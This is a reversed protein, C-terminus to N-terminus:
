DKATIVNKYEKVIVENGVEIKVPRELKVRKGTYHYEKKDSGQTTEVIVLNVNTMRSQKSGKKSNKKSGKRSGKRKSRFLQTMAKSAANAPDNSIYRGVHEGNSLKLTFSRKDKDM